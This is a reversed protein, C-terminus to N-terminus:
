PNLRPTFRRFTATQPMPGIVVEALTQDLATRARELQCDAEFKKQLAETYWKLAYSVAEHQKEIQANTKGM